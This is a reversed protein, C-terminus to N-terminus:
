ALNLKKEEIEDLIRLVENIKDAFMKDIVARKTDMNPYRIGEYDEISVKHHHFYRSKSNQIKVSVKKSKL